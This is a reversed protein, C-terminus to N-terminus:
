KLFKVVAAGVFAGVLFIAGAIAWLTVEMTVLDSGM